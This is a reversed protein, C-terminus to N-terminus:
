SNAMTQTDIVPASESTEPAKEEKTSNESNSQPESSQPSETVVATSSDSTQAKEEEDDREKGKKGNTPSAKPADTTASAEPTAEAKAPSKSSGGFIMDWM